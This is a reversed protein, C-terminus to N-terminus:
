GHALGTTAAVCAMVAALTAPDLRGLLGVRAAEITAIKACRVVSAVPLGAAALDAIPVDDRWRRNEASTIMLAWVLLPAGDAGLPGTSAVVLAPRGGTTTADTYPFPARVIDGREFGPM